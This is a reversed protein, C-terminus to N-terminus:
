DHIARQGSWSSRLPSADHCIGPPILRAMPV